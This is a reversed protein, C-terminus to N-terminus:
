SLSLGKLKMKVELLDRWSFRKQAPSRLLYAPHLTPMVPIEVGSATKHSMWNGRMRLIGSNSGTLLSAAPGGLAVIVKPSALEIQREIFPRCLETELATPQRNGPPRWAIINAIYVSERQYGIAGMMKDLLQGSRGAFPIGEMDEDRGPAEGIFMLDSAPNGDAFCLNKATFKLGCGDFEALANRLEELSNAKAAIARANEIQAADPVIQTTAANTRPQAAASQANGYHDRKQASNSIPEISSNAQMHNGATRPRNASNNENNLAFRNVPEDSLGVDVGAEAYFRLLEEFSLSDLLESM